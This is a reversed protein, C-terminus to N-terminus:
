NRGYYGRALLLAPLNYIKERRDPEDAGVVSVIMVDHVPFDPQVEKIVGIFNASMKAAGDADSTLLSARFRGCRVHYLTM